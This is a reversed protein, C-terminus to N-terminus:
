STLRIVQGHATGFPSGTIPTGPLISWQSVFVRGWRDVAVGAPFHLIGLGLTTRHGHWVKVIAGNPSQNLFDTSFESVYLAGNRWALGTIATFGTAYLRPKQHFKGPWVQWVRSHGSTTGDGALEGVLVSGNPGLSLSTPVSQFGQSNNPLVALLHVHGNIVQLVTNGAADTVIQSHRLALVAYPDSDVGQGDPDNNFEYNDIDAVKVLSGDSRLRMLNGLQRGAKAPVIPPLPDPGASTFQVYVRGWPDVSVGDAGVTFSGDQGGLSTLGTAVRAHHNGWIKTISGTFGLCDEPDLCISGSRGAEGVYLSGNPAFSLQRPNNAHSFVSTSGPAASAAAPLVLAAAMVALLTALSKRGRM